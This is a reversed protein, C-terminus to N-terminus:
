GVRRGASALVTGQPLPLGSAPERYLGGPMTAPQQGYMPAPPMQGYASPAPPMQGYAPPAPPMQGYAPPPPPANYGPPPPPQNYAPPPANYAPDNPDPPQTSM